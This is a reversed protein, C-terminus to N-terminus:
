GAPGGGPLIRGLALRREAQGLVSGSWALWRDGAELWARATPLDGADIALAGALHRLRPPGDSGVEEVLTAPGAPLVAYVQAWALAPEGQERALFGLWGTAMKRGGPLSAAASGELALRRPETWEGELVLLPLSFLRPLNIGMIGARGFEQIVEAALVRRM